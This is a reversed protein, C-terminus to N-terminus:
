QNGIVDGDLEWGYVGPEWVNNDIISIYIIGNEDPYRVKDGIMYADQAGSPQRWIPIEGPLAVQTFLAPTIDPTWNEQSRHQQVVRYLNNNYSVRENINYEKNIQWEPFLTVCELADEDNLSNMAKEILARLERARSETIM